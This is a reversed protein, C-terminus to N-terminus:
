AESISGARQLKGDDWKYLTRIRKAMRPYKCRASSDRTFFTYLSDATPWRFVRAIMQGYVEAPEDVASRRSGVQDRSVSERAFPTGMNVRNAFRIRPNKPSNM